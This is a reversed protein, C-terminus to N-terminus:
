HNPLLLVQVTTLIVNPYYCIYLTYPIKMFASIFLSNNPNHPSNQSHLVSDIVVVMNKNEFLDITVFM